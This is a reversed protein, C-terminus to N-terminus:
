ALLLVVSLCSGNSNLKWLKYKCTNVRWARLVLLYSQLVLYFLPVYIKLLMKYKHLLRRPLRHYHSPVKINSVLINIHKRPFLDAYPRPKSLFFFM